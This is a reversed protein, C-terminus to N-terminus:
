LHENLSNAFILDIWFTEFFFFLFHFALRKSSLVAAKPHHNNNNIPWPTQRNSLLCNRNVFVVYCQLCVCVSNWHVSVRQAKHAEMAAIFEAEGFSRIVEEVTM